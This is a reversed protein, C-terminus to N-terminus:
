FLLQSCCKNSNIAQNESLLEYYLVGKWDRWLCIVKEPHLGAKPTAPPPENQKGLSRKWEVNSNLMWKEDGVVIEKLFLVNENHRLVSSCSSIHDLNKKM